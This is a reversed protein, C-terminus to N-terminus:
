APLDQCYVARELFLYGQHCYRSQFDLNRPYELYEPCELYELCELCELCRNELNIM